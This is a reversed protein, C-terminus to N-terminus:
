NYNYAYAIKAIKITVCVLYIIRHFWRIFLLDISFHFYFFFILIVDYDYEYYIALNNYYSFRLAACIKLSLKTLFYLFNLKFYSQQIM